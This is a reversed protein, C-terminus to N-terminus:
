TPIGFLKWSYGLRWNTTLTKGVNITRNEIFLKGKHLEARCHDIIYINFTSPCTVKWGETIFIEGPLGGNVCDEPCNEATEGVDADCYNDGCFDPTPPPGYGSKLYDEITKLYDGLISLQIKLNDVAKQLNELWNKIENLSGEHENLKIRISGIDKWIRTIQTEHDDLYGTYSARFIDWQGSTENYYFNGVLVGKIQIDPVGEFSCIAYFSGKNLANNIITTVFSGDCDYINGDITVAAEFDGDSTGIKPFGVNTQWDPNSNIEITGELDGTISGSIYQPEENPYNTWLADITGEIKTLKASVLGPTILFVLVLATLITTKMKMVKKDM